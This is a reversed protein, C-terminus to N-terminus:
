HKLGMFLHYEHANTTLYNKQWEHENTNMRTWEHNQIKGNNEHKEHKEHNSLEYENTTQYEQGAQGEGPM